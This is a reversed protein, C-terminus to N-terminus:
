DRRVRYTAQLVEQPLLVRERDEWYEIVGEWTKVGEERGQDQCEKLANRANTLHNQIRAWEREM